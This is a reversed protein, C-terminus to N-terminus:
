VGCVVYVACICNYVCVVHLSYVGVGCVMGGYVM